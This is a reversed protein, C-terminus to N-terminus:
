RNRTAHWVVLCRGDFYLQRDQLSVEFSLDTPDIARDCADCPHGDGPRMWLQYAAQEPRPLEGRDIKRRIRDALRETM